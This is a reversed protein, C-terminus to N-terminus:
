GGFSVFYIEVPGTEFGSKGGANAIIPTDFANNTRLEM